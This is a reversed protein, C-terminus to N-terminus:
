RSRGSPDRHRQPGRRPQPRAGPCASIRQARQGPREGQDHLLTAIRYHVDARQPQAELVRVYVQLADDPRGGEQMALGLGYRADHFDQRAAIARQYHAVALDLLGLRHYTTALEFQRDANTPDAETLFRLDEILAGAGEGDLHAALREYAATDGVVVQLAVGAVEGDPLSGFQLPAAGTDRPADFRARM